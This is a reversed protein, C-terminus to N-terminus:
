FRDLLRRLYDLEITPRSRDGSRRRIEDMVERSRRYQDETPVLRENTEVNGGQSLPRGLPDRQEGQRQGPQTGQQGQQQSQAQRQAEGLQRMGERLAEMADAQNDLAESSNGRELNREAEEMQRQAEGLSDAFEEGGDVGNQGFEGQQRELMERLARQRDALQGPSMREGNQGQGQQQGQQEGEGQQDGQQQGQQQQGQQQGQQQNREYQEQLERYTDDALDQQERLTDGLGEMAQENESGQGGQSETVQMNEMMQQLQEMLAQAEAMRGQEMLEQIRDMMQQLQDQSLEQSEGNQAQQRDPNNRQEEALQRMYERTAQRLENMLEEIEQKTAGNKMAESLREQARKLRERADALDGDEILLAAKWLLDAVEDRVQDSLPADANYELRRLATRIMLYPKEGRREFAVEPDVTVAKLIMTIRDANARNWLLDRRQEAVAAALTDFFRKGPMPGIEPVVVGTQGLEDRVIMTITVPLGAWPHEALDEILTEEFADTNRTFPMPLDLEVADRPEPDLMLGHRRDVSDIALSITVTGGVVGYDDRAEFPMQLAGQITRTIDGTLAVQPDEDEIVKIDFQADTGQPPTLAIVGTKAVEFTAEGFGSDNANLAIPDGSSVTESFVTGDLAGYVRLTIRTGEPLNLATDPEVDNLYVAPKGTYAPPEAWGEWSPGLAVVPDEAQLSDVLSQVPDSRGFLIAAGFLFLAILRFAWPDRKALRVHPRAAKSGRALAAMKELHRAWLYRAGADHEGISLKDELTQLPRGPLDADLRAKAQAQTPWEFTRAGKAFLWLFGIVGAVLVAIAVNQSANLLVGMRAVAVFALVWAFVPWFSRAVREVLLSGRTLRLRWKLSRMAQRTMKGTNIEFEAM